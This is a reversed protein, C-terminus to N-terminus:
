LQHGDEDFKEEALREDVCEDSHLWDHENNLQKYVWDAFDVMAQTIAADLADITGAEEELESDPDFEIAIVMTGSHSYNWSGYGRSVKATFSDLGHLKRTLQIMGLRDALEHLVKDEPAEARIMASAEPALKYSGSFCAGDGQSCFGSFYIDTTEYNRGKPSTHNTTSITIGLIAAMRVADECTCDWWDYDLYEGSTHETRAADKASESLESFKFETQEEVETM